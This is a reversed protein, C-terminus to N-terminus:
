YILKEKLNRLIMIPVGLKIKLNHPPLGPTNIRNLQRTTYHQSKSGYHVYDISELEKELVPFNPQVEDAPYSLNQGPQWEIM